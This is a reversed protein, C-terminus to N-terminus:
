WKAGFVTGVFFMAAVSGFFVCFWFIFRLRQIRVAPLRDTFLVVIPVGRGGWAVDSLEGAKKARVFERGVAIIYYGMPFWAIVGCLWFFVFFHGVLTNVM